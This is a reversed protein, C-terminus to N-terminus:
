EELGGGVSREPVPGPHDNVHIEIRRRGTPGRFDLGMYGEQRYGRFVGEATEYHFDRLAEIGARALRAQLPSWAPPLDALIKDFHLVEFSGPKKATLEGRAQYLEELTGTGVISADFRGDIVVYDPTLIETIPLLEVDSASAWADWPTGDEMYVNFGGEVYSGEGYFEGGFRGYIGLADYTLTLYVDRAEFKRWRLVSAQLTEVLNSDVTRFPLNFQVEGRLDEVEIEFPMVRYTKRPIVFSSELTGRALQTKVEFPFSYPFWSLVVGKPAVYLKGGAVEVEVVDWGGEGDGGREELELGEERAGTTRGRRQERYYDIYWFLHEGVFLSPSIIEVKDIRKQSLGGVSFEVFVVPLEAVTATAVYPSRIKLGKLEVRQPVSALRLAVGGLPVESLHSEVGLDVSDIGPVIRDLEVRGGEIHVSGAWWGGHVPDHAEVDAVAVEGDELDGRGSALETILGMALEDITAEVGRLVVRDIRKKEWIESARVVVRAEPVEVIAQGGVDARLEVGMLVLEHPREPLAWPPEEGDAPLSSVSWEGRVTPLGRGSDRLAFVGGEILIEGVDIGSWWGPVGYGEEGDVVEEELSGLGGKGEGVLRGLDLEIEPAGVELRAIRRRDGFLEDPVLEVRVREVRARRGAEGVDDWGGGGGWRLDALDLWVVGDGEVGEGGLRIEGGSLAFGLSLVQDKGLEIRVEGDLVEIEGLGVWWREGGGGFGAAAGEVEAGRGFATAMGRTWDVAMGEVALREIRVLEGEEEGEMLEIGVRGAGVGGPEGALGFDLGSLQVGARGWSEIGGAGMEIEEIEGSLGVEVEPIVALPLLGHGEDFEGLALRGIELSARGLWAEPLGGAGGGGGGGGGREAAWSALAGIVGLLGPGVELEASWIRLAEVEWRGSDEGRALLIEVGDLLRQVEGEGGAGGAWEIDRLTFAQEEMLLKGERDLGLMKGDLDFKARMLGQGAPLLIELEGGEVVVHGVRPALDLLWRPVLGGSADVVALKAGEVMIVEEDATVVGEGAWGSAGLDLRVKPGEFRLESLEGSALGGRAAEWRVQDIEIALGVEEGLDLWIGDLEGGGYALGRHGGFGARLGLQEALYWNALPVRWMYAAWLTALLLVTGSVGWFVLGRLIRTRKSIKQGQAGRAGRAPRGARRSAEDM